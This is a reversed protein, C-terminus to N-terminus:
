GSDFAQVKGALCRNDAMPESPGGRGDDSTAPLDVALRLRGATREYLMAFRAPALLDDHPEFGPIIKAFPIAGCGPPRCDPRGKPCQNFACLRGLYRNTEPEFLFTDIQHGVVGFSAGAEFLRRLARDRARRLSDLGNLFELWLALDLDSCEHWLAIGEGRYPQFRPVEKELPRAVSGIVAIARIEPFAAWADAVADAAARFQRQRDLLGRNERKIDSRRM